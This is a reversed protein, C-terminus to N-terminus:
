LKKLLARDGQILALKKARTWRKLQAERKEATSRDSHEEQYLLSIPLRGRTYFGGKGVLHERLRRDLDTTTGVYLSEDACKLIYLHWMPHSPIQGKSEPEVRGVAESV